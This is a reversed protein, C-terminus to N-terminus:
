NALDPASHEPDRLKTAGGPPCATLTLSRLPDSCLRDRSKAALWEAAKKVCSGIKRPAEAWWEASIKGLHCDPDRRIQFLSQSSCMRSRALNRVEACRPPEVWAGINRGRGNPHPSRALYSRARAKPM